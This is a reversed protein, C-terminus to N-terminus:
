LGTSFAVQGSLYKNKTRKINEAWEFFFKERRCILPQLGVQLHGKGIFAQCKRNANRVGRLHGKQNEGVISQGVKWGFNTQEGGGREGM